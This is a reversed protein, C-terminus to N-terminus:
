QRSGHFFGSGNWVLGDFIEEIMVALRTIRVCDTALPIISCVFIFVGLEPYECFKLEGTAQLTTGRGVLDIIKLLSVYLVNLFAAFM